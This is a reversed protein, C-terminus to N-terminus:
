PRSKCESTIGVVHFRGCKDVLCDVKCDSEKQVYRFNWEKKDGNFSQHSLMFEGVFHIPTYKGAVDTAKQKSLGEEPCGSLYFYAVYVALLFIIVLVSIYFSRKLKITNM